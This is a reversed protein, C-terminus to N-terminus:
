ASTDMGEDKAEGEGDMEADEDGDGGATELNDLYPQIAEGDIIQWDHGVGM